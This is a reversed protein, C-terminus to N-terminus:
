KESPLRHRLSPQLEPLLSVYDERKGSPLAPIADVAVAEVTLSPHLLERVLATLGAIDNTQGPDVPVYRYEIRDLATQVVQFQRHPVFREVEGSELHPFASTGDIFRFIHRSRGLISEFLPLTRGCPCPTAALMGIDGTDCRIFPMAYNYLSTAVIRGPTGAAVPRDSEDVIEILALEACIHHRGSQPCAGAIHGIETTGYRDLPNVGFRDRIEARAQPSVHEGITLLADFAFPVGQERAIRGIERMNTPFTTLTAPKTRRLWEVQHIVSTDISLAVAPSNAYGPRWSESAIGEPYSGIGPPLDVIQGTLAAPDLRHWAFFRENAAASALNQIASNFHRLPQGTSGSTTSPIAEGAAPPSSRAALAAENEQAEPRTLIPIEEWREWDITGDARFMPNLRGAYFDTESRAHHLLREALRRQYALLRDPALYQTEDLSKLFAAFAPEM